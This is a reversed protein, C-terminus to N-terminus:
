KGGRHGEGGKRRGMGSGGERGGEGVREERM